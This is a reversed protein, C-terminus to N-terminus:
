STNKKKSRRPPTYVGDISIQELGDTIVENVMREIRRATVADVHSAVEVSVRRGLTLLSRKLVIFFRQLTDTTEEASVYKGKLEGLKIAASAAALKKLDTDAKLKQEKLAVADAQGETRIGSGVLGRWRLIDKLCWWGHEEKPCGDRVWYTLTSKDIGLLECLDSTSICKKGGIVRGWEDAMDTAGEKGGM